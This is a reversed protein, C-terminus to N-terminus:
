PWTQKKPLNDCYGNTFLNRYPKGIFLGVMRLGTAFHSRDKTRLTKKDHYVAKELKLNFVSYYFTIYTFCYQVM